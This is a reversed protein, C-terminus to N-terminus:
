ETQQSKLVSLTEYFTAPATYFAETTKSGMNLHITDSKSLIMHQDMRTNLIKNFIKGHKDFLSTPRYNENYHQSIDFKPISIMTAHTFISPFNGISLSLYTQALQQM